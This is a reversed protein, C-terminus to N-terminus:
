RMVYASGATPKMKKEKQLLHNETCSRLCSIIGILLELHLFNADIISLTPSSAVPSTAMLENGTKSLIKINKTKKKKKKKKLKM